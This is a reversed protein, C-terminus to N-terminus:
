EELAATERPGEQQAGEPEAAARYATPDDTFGAQAALYREYIGSFGLSVAQEEYRAWLHGVLVLVLVAALSLAAVNALIRTKM